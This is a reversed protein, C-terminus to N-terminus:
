KNNNQGQKIYWYLLNVDNNYIKDNFNRKEQAAIDFVNKQNEVDLDYQIHFYTRAVDRLSIVCKLDALSFFGKKICEYAMQYMQFNDYM